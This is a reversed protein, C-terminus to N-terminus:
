SRLLNGIMWYQPIFKGPYWDLNSDWYGECADYPKVSFGYSIEVIKPNNMQDFIFDYAICQSRLKINVDFAIKVCRIDIEDKNFIIMGSGSARFDNKRVMRKLGFAKNGIVIIRIDYNNNPLFEQIYLYGKEKIRNSKQHKTPIIYNKFGALTEKLYYLKKYKKYKGWNNRMRMTPSINSFGKSFITKIIKKAKDKSEILKVNESGAGSRLKFVVPYNTSEAWKRALIETYFVKSKVLPAGLSELLYKQGIKDDFHWMTNFNPFVKIGMKDISYILQKAFLMDKLKAHHFHWLFHTCGNLQKIIDSEYVNVLKFTYNNIKCYDVWRESFSNIEFHIAIIINTKM